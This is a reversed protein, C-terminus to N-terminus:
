KENKYKITFYKPDLIGNVGQTLIVDNKSLYFKIGDAMAKEMDIYIFIDCDARMGSKVEGPLGSACHIYERSMKMLGKKKINAVVNSYTGHICPVIPKEIPTLYKEANLLQAVTGSHGQNASIYLKEGTNRLSFRNKTDNTAIEVILDSTCGEFKKLKLIDNVSVFGDDTMDLKLDAAAHRLIWSLAMSYKKLRYTEPQSSNM